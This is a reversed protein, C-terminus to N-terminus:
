LIIPGNCPDVCSVKRCWAYTGNRRRCKVFDTIIRCNAYPYGSQIVEDTGYSCNPPCTVTINSQILQGNCQLPKIRTRPIVPGSYAVTQFLSSSKANRKGESAIPVWVSGEKRLIRGSSWLQLDSFLAEVFLFKVSPLTTRGALESLMTRYDTVELAPITITTTQQHNLRISGPGDPTVHLGDGMPLALSFREENGNADLRAVAVEALFYVITKGSVNKVDITLESLWNDAGPFTQGFQIPQGRYRLGTVILPSSNYAEPIVMRNSEQVPKAAASDAMSGALVLLILLSALKNTM